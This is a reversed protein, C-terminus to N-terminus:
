GGDSADEDDVLDLNLSLIELSPPLQAIALTTYGLRHNSAPDNSAERSLSTSLARYSEPM